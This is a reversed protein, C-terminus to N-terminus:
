FQITVTITGTYSGTAADQLAPIRGYIGRTDAANNAATGTVGPGTSPWTTTRGADTYVEFNLTDPGNTMQRTGTVYLDYSTNRSCRFTFDGAADTDAADTPDYTGFAINTFGSIRCNSNVTASASLSQTETAAYASGAALVLTAVIMTILTKKM